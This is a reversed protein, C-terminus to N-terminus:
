RRRIQSCGIAGGIHHTKIGSRETTVGSVARLREMVADLFYWHLGVDSEDSLVNRHAFLVNDDLTLFSRQLLL